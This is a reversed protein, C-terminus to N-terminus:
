LPRVNVDSSLVSLLDVSYDCDAGGEREGEPLMMRCGVSLMLSRVDFPRGIVRWELM